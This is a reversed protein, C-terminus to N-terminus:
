GGEGLGDREDRIRWRRSAGREDSFGPFVFLASGPAVAEEQGVEWPDPHAGRAGHSTGLFGFVGPHPDSGARIGRSGTIPSGGSVVPFSGHSRIPFPGPIDKFMGQTKNSPADPATLAM